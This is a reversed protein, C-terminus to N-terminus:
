NKNKNLTMCNHNCWEQIWSLDKSLSAAFAPRDAPKCVVEPLTFDDADAFLTNKVREIMKSTLLIFLIPGFVSGQPMGSIILIWESAAGDVVVRQRRNTIFETCISMGGVGVYKFKLLLSSNSVREFAASFDLQVIYSKMGADLSKQFQHFITLLPDTCGLDKWAIDVVRAFAPSSTLFLRWSKWLIGFRESAASSISHLHKELSTKSNFTVRLHKELSTKSYFTVRLHKKLSTKSYFIVRLHKELSTKSYFTM